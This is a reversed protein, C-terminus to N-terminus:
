KKGSTLLRYEGEGTESQEDNRDDAEAEIDECNGDETKYISCVSEMESGVNGVEEGNEQKL